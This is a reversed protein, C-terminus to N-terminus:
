VFGAGRTEDDSIAPPPRTEPESELLTTPRITQPQETKRVLVFVGLKYPLRTM